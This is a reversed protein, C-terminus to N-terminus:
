GTTWSTVESPSLGKGMLYGVALPDVKPATTWPLMAYCSAAKAQYSCPGTTWSTVESPSLGKGILYGVALPDAKPTASSQAIPAAAAAALLALTLLYSKRLMTRERGKRTGRSATRKPVGLTLPPLRQPM